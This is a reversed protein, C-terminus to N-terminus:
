ARYLCYRALLVSAGAAVLLGTALTGSSPLIALWVAACVVVLWSSAALLVCRAAPAWDRMPTAVLAGIVLGLVVGAVSDSVFHSGRFVRTLSVYGALAFAPWALAPCYRAVVAAVAFSASAHGSPFSDLGSELSPGTFFEDERRLRPRPRGIGHKLSQVLVATMAHAIWGRLGAQSLEPRKRWYGVAVFLGSLVILSVGSGIIYGADGVQEIWFGQLTRVFEILPRDMQLAAAFLLALAAVTFISSSYRTIPSSHRTPPVPAADKHIEESM